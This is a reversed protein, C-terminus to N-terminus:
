HIEKFLDCFTYNELYTYLNKRGSTNLNQIEALCTSPRRNNAQGLLSYISLLFLTLACYRSMEHVHPSCWCRSLKDSFNCKFKCLTIVDVIVKEIIKM